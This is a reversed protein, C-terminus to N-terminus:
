RLEQGLEKIHSKLNTITTTHKEVEEELLLSSRSVRALSAKLCIRDRKVKAIPSSKKAPAIAARAQQANNNYNTYDFDINKQSHKKPAQIVHSFKRRRRNLGRMQQVRATKNAEDADHVLLPSPMSASDANAGLPTPGDNNNDRVLIDGDREEAM